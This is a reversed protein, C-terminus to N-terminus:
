EITGHTDDQFRVTVAGADAPNAPPKYAGFLSQGGTYESLRGSFNYPDDNPGGSVLWRARGNEDYLYGALYMIGDQSEVFFGRGSEAEHSWWGAQPAAAASSSAILAMSFIWAHLRM